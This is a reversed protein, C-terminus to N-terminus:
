NFRYDMQELLGGAGNYYNRLPNRQLKLSATVLGTEPTWKADDVKVKTPIEFRALRQDRLSGDVAAALAAEDPKGGVSDWGREPQSVIAVCHDKDSRAFVVAMSIGPVQKLANEVKGLSVYEGGSLKILDKKRDIIRLTGSQTMEGIDGTHFWVKGDDDHRPFDELSKAEMKYYGKQSVAPGSVLIEGRPPTTTVVYGMEEVSKLKIETCPQCAGVTGSSQDIPRGDVSQVEQVTAAGTTETAGYGQAVPALVAAIFEQTQAALPAGGSVIARLNELGLGTRIKNLVHPTIGAALALLCDVSCGEGSQQGQVRAVAARAVVGQFGGTNALKAMLGTKILELIAPVAVLLTPRAVLLDCGDTNDKAIYPSSPTLTRAHAYAISAGKVICCTEVILELIHALPLFALFLDTDIPSVVGQAFISAMLACFNRHTLMVGKPVGTSGSTYMIFALDETRPAFRATDMPNAKGATILDDLTTVEALGVPGFSAAQRPRPFAKTSGGVTEEPVFCKGILIIHRLSKIKALVTDKLSEFQGWDLFLVTAETEVLGHLMADQGLTTYVTTIPMGLQYMAQASMHWEASTDALIGGVCEVKDEKKAQVTPLALLGSAAAQVMAGVGSYTEWTLPGKKWFMKKGDMKCEVIPRTGMCRKNTFKKVAEKFLTPITAPEDLPVMDPIEALKGENKDYCWPHRYHREDPNNCKLEVAYTMRAEIKDANAAM